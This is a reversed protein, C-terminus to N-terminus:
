KTRKLVIITVDDYPNDSFTQMNFKEFLSKVALEPTYNVVSLFWKKALEYGIVEGSKLPTEIFGDTYLFLTDGIEFNLKFETYTNKERVGLPLSPSEIATITGLSAKYFFPYNHGANVYTLTNTNSDLLFAFLTMMKKRKINKLLFKNFQSIVSNLSSLNSSSYNIACKAMGMVLAASVGHGSVDGILGFLQGNETIFYDFYDGGIDTMARSYGFLSYNGLVLPKDPFLSDQVVKAVQLDHMGELVKNFLNSVQALEDDSYIPIKYDFKRQKIANIGSEISKIPVLINEILLISIIVTSILIFVLLIKLYFWLMSLYKKLFDLNVNAIIFYNSLNQCSTGIWLFTQLHKNRTLKTVTSKSKIIENVITTLFKLNEEINILYYSIPLNTEFKSYKHNYIAVNIPLEPQKCLEQLKSKIYYLEFLHKPIHILLVSEANGYNDVFVDTYIYSSEEFLSLTSFKGIQKVIKNLNLQEQGILSSFISEATEAILTTADVTISNNVRRLLERCLITSFQARKKHIELKLNEDFQINISTKSDVLFFQEIFSFKKLKELIQAKAKLTKADKAKNIVKKIFIEVQALENLLRIDFDTIKNKIKTQLESRIVNEHDKLAYFGVILLIVSPLLVAFLFLSFLKYTIKGSIFKNQYFVQYLLSLFWLFTFIIFNAYTFNSIVKPKINFALLYENPRAQIFFVYRNELEFYNEYKALTSIFLSNIGQIKRFETPYYKIKKDQISIFCFQQPFFYKNYLNIALKINKQRNINVQHILAVFGYPINSNSITNSKLSTNYNVYKWYLYTNYNRNLLFVPTSSKFSIDELTNVRLFSKLLGQMQNSITRRNNLSLLSQFVLEIARKPYNNSSIDQILKGEKNFWFIDAVNPFNKQIKKYYNVANASSSSFKKLTYDLLKTFLTLEDTLINLKKLIKEINDKNAQIKNNIEIKEIQYLSILAVTIPFVAFVWVLAIKKITNIFTQM